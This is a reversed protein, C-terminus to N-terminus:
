LICIITISVMLRYHSFFWRERVYPSKEPSPPKSILISFNYVGLTSTFLLGLVSYIPKSGILYLTVLGQAVACLSMFINSFLIFDFVPQLIKKMSSLFTAGAYTQKKAHNIRSLDFIPVFNTM